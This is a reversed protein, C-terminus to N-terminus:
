LLPTVVSHPSLFLTSQPHYFYQETNSLHRPVHSIRYECHHWSECSHSYMLLKPHLLSIIPLILWGLPECLM